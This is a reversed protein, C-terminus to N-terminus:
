KTEVFFKKIKKIKEKYKTPVCFTIGKRARTIAVYFIRKEESDKVKYGSLIKVMRETQGEDMILFVHDTTIGKVSHVTDVEKKADEAQQPVFFDSANTNQYDLKGKKKPTFDIGKFLTSGKTHKTAQKAWEVLKLNTSPLSSLEEEVTSFWERKSLEQQELHDERNYVKHRNLYTNEARYMSARYNGQDYDSKAHLVDIAVINDGKFPNKNMALLNGSSYRTVNGMISSSRSVVASIEDKKLDDKFEDIRDIIENQDNYFVVKPSQENGAIAKDIAKPTKPLTSFLFYFDCIKQSSRRCDNLYYAKNKKKLTSEYKIFLEPKAGNWGYISQDPDGIVGFRENDKCESLLKLIEWHIPTTDQAEDVYLYPFRASITERIYPFKKLIKLSYYNADAQTFRSSKNITFYKIKKAKEITVDDYIEKTSPKYFLNGNLEYNLNMACKQARSWGYYRTHPEGIMKIKSSEFGLESIFPFFIYKNIFSDITGIYHPYGLSRESIKKIEGSLEEQATNTFSLLAVGERLRNWNEVDDIAKCAITFTKGSGPCARVLFHGSAENIIKEQENTLEM